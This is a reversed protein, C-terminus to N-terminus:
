HAHVDMEGVHVGRVTVEVGHRRAETLKADPDHAVTEAGGARELDPVQVRQGARADPRVQDHPIELSAGRLHALAKGRDAGAHARGNADISAGLSGSLSPTGPSARAYGPM